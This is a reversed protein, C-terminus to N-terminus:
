YHQFDIRYKAFVQDIYDLWQNGPSWVVAVHQYATDPDIEEHVVQYMFTFVSARKNVQCHVLVKRGRYQNLLDSFLEFQELNYARVDVPIRVYDIGKGRIIGEEDPLSEATSPPSLNVVLEFDSKEMRAFQAESPQGATMIWASVEVQNILAADNSEKVAGAICGSLLVLTLAFLTIAGIKKVSLSVSLQWHYM